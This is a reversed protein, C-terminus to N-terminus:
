CKEGGVKELIGEFTGAASSCVQSNQRVHIISETISVKYFIDQGDVLESWQAAVAEWSPMREKAFLGKPDAVLSKFLAREAKTHVPLVAVLTNQQTALYQHRIKMGRAYERNFAHM